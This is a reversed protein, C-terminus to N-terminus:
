ADEWYLKQQFELTHSNGDPTVVDIAFRLVEEDGHRVEALYYVAEGEVVEALGLPRESGLLDRVTGAVQVRVPKGEPGLISM